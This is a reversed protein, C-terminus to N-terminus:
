LRTAGISDVSDGRELSINLLRFFGSDVGSDVGWWSNGGVKVGLKVVLVYLKV